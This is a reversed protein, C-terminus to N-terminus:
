IIAQFDDSFCGLKLFEGDISNGELKAGFSIMIFSENNKASTKYQALSFMELKLIDGLPYIVVSFSFIFRFM